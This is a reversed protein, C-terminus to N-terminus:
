VCTMGSKIRRFLQFVRNHACSAAFFGASVPMVKVDRDERAAATLNKQGTITQFDPLRAEVKAGNHIKAHDGYMMVMMMQGSALSSTNISRKQAKV